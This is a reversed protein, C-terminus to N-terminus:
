VNATPKPAFFSDLPTVLFNSIALAALFSFEPLLFSLAFSLMAAIIGFAAKAKQQGPTTMPEVLMITSFFLVTGATVSAFLLPMNFVGTFLMSILNLVLTTALFPLTIFWANIRWVVVLGLVASLLPNSTAWWSQLMGNFATVVLAGINAPNFVHSFGMKVFHKSLLAIAVAALSFHITAFSPTLVISLITSTIIASLPIGFQRKEFHWLVLEIVAGFIVTALIPLIFSTATASTAFNYVLTVFLVALVTYRADSALTKFLEM